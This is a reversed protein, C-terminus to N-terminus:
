QLLPEIDVVYRQPQAEHHQILINSLILLNLFPLLRGVPDIEVADKGSITKMSKNKKM